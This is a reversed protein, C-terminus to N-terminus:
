HVDKHTLQMHTLRTQDKHDKGPGDSVSLPSNLKPRKATPPGVELLNDAM